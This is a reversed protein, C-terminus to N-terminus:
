LARCFALSRRQGGSSVASSESCTETAEVAEEAEGPAATEGDEGAAEDAAADDDSGVEGILSDSASLL